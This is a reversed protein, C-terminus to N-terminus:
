GKEKGKVPAWIRKNTLYLLVSLVTLFLVGTLGAQKRAMMKPEAAWTLFAAVDEAEQELTAATGDDYDLDDGWLPKAMSIWSGPVTPYGNEDRCSEPFAGATFASNYSGEMDDPTCEPPDEYGVMLSYIYEPGGMGNVLQSIGTGAPGHFGARKKAMLSLDPASELGSGPFNDVPKAARWDDIEPDFIEYGSAFARVQDAPLNPGGPDGLTRIPVYQMGHCASCVQQYVKLGRQLQLQDFKGFPGEFSFAIDEIHAEGGAAMAAGGSLSLATLAAIGTTKFM